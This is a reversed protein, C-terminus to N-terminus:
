TSACKRSIAFAVDSGTLASKSFQKAWSGFPTAALTFRQMSVPTAPM